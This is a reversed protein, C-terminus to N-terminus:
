LIKVSHGTSNPKLYYVLEAEPPPTVDVRVWDAHDPHRAVMGRLTLYEVADDLTQQMEPDRTKPIYWQGLDNAEAPQWECEVDSRATSDAIQQQLQQLRNM